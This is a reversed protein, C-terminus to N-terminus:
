LDATSSILQWAFAGPLKVRVVFECTVTLYFIIILSYLCPSVDCASHSLSPLLFFRSAHKQEMM